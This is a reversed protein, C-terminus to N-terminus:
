ALWEGSRMVVRDAHEEEPGWVDVQRLGIVFYSFVGSSTRPDWDSQTAFVDDLVATDSGAGRDIVEALRGTVLVVDHTAGFALKATSTERLNRATQSTPSTCIVIGEPIWAYSFPVLHARGGGNATAVWVHGEQHRFVREAHARREQASRVTM